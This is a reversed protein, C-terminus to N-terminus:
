GRKNLKMTFANIIWGRLLNTSKLICLCSSSGQCKQLLSIQLKNWLILHDNCMQSNLVPVVGPAPYTFYSLPCCHKKNLSISCFLCCFHLLNHCVTVTVDQSPRWIRYPRYYFVYVEDPCFFFFWPIEPLIDLFYTTHMLSGLLGLLFPLFFYLGSSICFGCWLL